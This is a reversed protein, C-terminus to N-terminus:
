YDLESAAQGVIYSPPDALMEVCERSSPQRESRAFETGGHDACRPSPATCWGDDSVLVTPRNCYVETTRWGGGKRPTNTTTRHSCPRSADRASSLPPTFM